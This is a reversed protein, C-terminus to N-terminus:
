RHRGDWVDGFGAKRMVKHVSLWKLAAKLRPFRRVPVAALRLLSAMQRRALNGRDVAHKPAHAISAMARDAVNSWSSPYAWSALLDPILLNRDPRLWAFFDGGRTTGQPQAYFSSGDGLITAFGLEVIPDFHPRRDYDSPAVPRLGPAFVSLPGFRDRGGWCAGLANSLATGPLRTQKMAAAVIEAFQRQADEPSFYKKVHNIANSSVNQRQSADDRFPILRQTMQIALPEALDLLSEIRWVEGFVDSMEVQVSKGAELVVANGADLGYDRIEQLDTVVPIVGLGMSKLTSVSHLQRSPLLVFDCTTLLAEHESRNLYQGRFCFVKPSDLVALLQPPFGLRKLHEKDAKSLFIFEDDPYIQNWKMMFYLVAAFGRAILNDTGGHLSSSFLFRCYPRARPSIKTAPFGIPCYRLKANVKDSNFFRRYSDLTQRVHSVIALCGPAEFIDLLFRRMRSVKEKGTRLLFPDKISWPFFVTEFSEAHFVFPKIGAWVPSTHILKVECDSIEDLLAEKFDFFRWFESAEVSQESHRVEDLRELFETLFAANDPKQVLDQWRLFDLTLLELVSDGSAHLFEYLPHFGNLPVYNASNWPLAVRIRHIDISM